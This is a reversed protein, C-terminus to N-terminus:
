SHVVKGFNEKRVAYSGAYLSQLRRESDELLRIFFRISDRYTDPKLRTSQLSFVIMEKEQDLRVDVSLDRTSIILSIMNLDADPNVDVYLSLRITPGDELIDLEYDQFMDTFIISNYEPRIRTQYGMDKLFEGIMELTVRDDDGTDPVMQLDELLASVEPPMESVALRAELERIRAELRAIEKRTEHNM